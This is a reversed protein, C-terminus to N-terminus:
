DHHIKFLNEFRQELFPLLVLALMIVAVLVHVVTVDLGLSSQVYHSGSLLGGLFIAMIVAGLPHLRGVFAVVIALFGYSVSINDALVHFIGSVQAMGAIGSLGGSLIMSTVVIKRVPIGGYLATDPNVGVAKIHYGYTSKQLIFWVVVALVLAIIFGAHAGTGPLIPLWATPWIQESVPFGAATTSRWPFKILYSVFWVAIFVMLLSTIIENTNFRARLYGPIAGWVAGFIFAFIVMLLIQLPGPISPVFYGAILAGVAGMYLQGEAGLNWIGARFVLLLGLACFLLPTAQNLAQGLRHLSGFGGSFLGLFVEGPNFGSIAVLISTIGFAVAFVILLPIVKSLYYGRRPSLRLRM